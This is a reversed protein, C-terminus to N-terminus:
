SRILRQQCSKEFPAFPEECMLWKQMKKQLPYVFCVVMIAGCAAFGTASQMIEIESFETRNTVTALGALGFALLIGSYTTWNYIKQQYVDTVTAVVMLALLCMTAIM